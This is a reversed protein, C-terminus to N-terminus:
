RSFMQSGSLKEKKIMLGAKPGNTIHFRLMGDDM